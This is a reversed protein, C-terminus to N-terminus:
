KKRIPYSINEQQHRTGRNICGILGQSVGYQDAIKQQSIKTESLLKIIELIEKQELKTGRTKSYLPYQETKDFYRKGTNISSLHPISIGTQESIEKFPVGKKILEKAYLITEYSFKEGGKGWANGGTNQNYGKFCTDYYRIWYIEKENAEEDTLNDELIEIKFANEGYKRLARSLPYEYEKRQECYSDYKHQWIRFNLNNTQGIYKYENTEKKFYAYIIKM